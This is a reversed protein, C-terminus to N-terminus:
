IPIQALSLNWPPIYLLHPSGPGLPFKQGNGVKWNQEGENIFDSSWGDQSIHSKPDFYIPFTNFLLNIAVWLPLRTYLFIIMFLYLWSLSLIWTQLCLISNSGRGHWTLLPSVIGREGSWCKSTLSKTLCTTLMIEYLGWWLGQLLHTIIENQLHPLWPKILNLSKIRKMKKLGRLFRIFFANENLVSVSESCTVNKGWSLACYHFLLKEVWSERISVM